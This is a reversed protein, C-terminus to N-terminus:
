RWNRHARKRRYPDIRRKRRRSWRPGYAQQKTHDRVCTRRGFPWAFLACFFEPLWM